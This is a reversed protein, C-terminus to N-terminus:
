DQRFIRITWLAGNFRTFALTITGGEHVGIQQAVQAATLPFDRVMIDARRMKERRLSKPDFREMGIIRYLRGPIATRGQEDPSERPDIASFAFGTDSEIHMIRQAFYGRAVRAKVLAADPVVLFDPHLLPPNPTPPSVSGDDFEEGRVIGFGTVMASVSGDAAYGAADGVSVTVERCEGGLSVVEVSGGLRRRAEQVDFMPSLKLVVLRGAEGGNLLQPMLTLVNPSCDELLVLKQGHTGRRDADIYILDTPPVGGAVFEEASCNVVTINNAGLLGFNVRALHAVAPDREVAIVRRFHQSLAWADVGLGCTLDIALDGDGGFRQLAMAESSAQEFALPPIICGAAAWQPLKRAARRLYKVQTAVLAAHPIRSNLAVRVPDDAEHETVVDRLGALIDIEEITM